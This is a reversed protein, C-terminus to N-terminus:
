NTYDHTPNPHKKILKLNNIKPKISNTRKMNQGCKENKKM